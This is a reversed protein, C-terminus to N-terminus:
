EFVQKLTQMFFDNEIAKLRESLSNATDDGYVEIVKQAIVPGEDFNESVYHVTIGSQTEKNAIVAEHVKHGYMGVGGYKPLLSPHTNIIKNEFAQITKPGIKKMFGALVVWQVQSEILDSSVFQDWDVFSNWQSQPILVSPISLDKARELVYADQNNCYLKVVQANLNGEECAQVIKQFNSGNHSSFIAIRNRTKSKETAQAKKSSEM